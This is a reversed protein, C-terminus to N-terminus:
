AQRKRRSAALGALALGVLAVSGPEPVGNVDVSTVQFNAANFASPGNLSGFPGPGNFPDGSRAIASGPFFQQLECLLQGPNPGEEGGYAAANVGRLGATEVVEGYGCAQYYVGQGSTLNGSVTAIIDYDLTFSEGAGVVGMSVNYNGGAGSATNAGPSSCTMYSPSGFNLDNDTCTAPNGATQNITTSDQAVVNGNKKVSLMLNAFGVGAGSVGVEGNDVNFNFNFLQASSSNNTFTQSYTSRTYASFVGEGSARAGFYTAGQTFGYTHFFVNSPAATRYLYLDAGGNQTYINAQPDTMGNQTSGGNLSYTADLTINGYTVPAAFAVGSMGFVLTAVALPVTKLRMRSTTMKFIGTVLRTSFFNGVTFMCFGPWKKFRM